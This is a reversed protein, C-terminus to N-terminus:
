NQLSHMLIVRHAGDLTVQRGAVDLSGSPSKAKFFFNLAIPITAKHAPMIDLEQKVEQDTDEPHTQM